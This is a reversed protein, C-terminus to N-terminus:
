LRNQTQNRLSIGYPNIANQDWGLCSPSQTEWTSTTNPPFYMAESPIAPDEDNNKSCGLVLLLVIFVQAINKM